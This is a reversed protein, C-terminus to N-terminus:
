CSAFRDRRLAWPIRVLHIAGHPAAKDSKESFFLLGKGTEAAWATVHHAVDAAKDAKFTSISKLDVAENGFWFFKKSFLLNRFAIINAQHKREM